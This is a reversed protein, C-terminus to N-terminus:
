RGDVLSPGEWGVAGGGHCGDCNMSGFLGQGSKADNPNESKSQPPPTSPPEIGGASVHAEYRMGPGTAAADNGAASGSSQSRQQCGATAILAAVILLALSSNRANM